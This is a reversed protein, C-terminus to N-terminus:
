VNRLFKRKFYFFLDLSWHFIILTIFIIISSLIKHYKIKTRQKQTKNNDNISILIVSCYKSLGALNLLEEIDSCKDFIYEFLKSPIYKLYSQRPRFCLFQINYELNMESMIKIIQDKHDNPYFKKFLYKGLVTPQFLLNSHFNTTSIFIPHNHKNIRIMEKLFLKPEDLSQWLQLSFICDSKNEELNIKYADSYIYEARHKKNIKQAIKLASHSVDFGIIKGNFNEQFLYKHWYGDGCGIDCIIDYDDNLIKKLIIKKQYNFIYKNYFVSNSPTIGFALTSLDDLFKPSSYDVMSYLNEQNGRLDIYKKNDDLM